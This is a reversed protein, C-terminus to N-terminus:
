QAKRLKVDFDSYSYEARLYEIQGNEKLRYSTRSQPFPIGSSFDFDANVVLSTHDAMRVSYAMLRHDGPDFYYEWVDVNAKDPLGDIVQVSEYDKGDPLSKLGLYTLRKEGELLDFPKTMVYAAADLDRKKSKLFDENQIENEGLWYRTRKGDFLAKHRISDKEWSMRIEWNPQFRIEIEQFLENELSSDAQYLRTEKAFTLSEVNEWRASGGHAEISKSILNIAKRESSPKCSILAFCILLTRISKSFLQSSSM